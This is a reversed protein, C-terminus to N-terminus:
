SCRAFVLHGSNSSFTFLLLLLDAHRSSLRLTALGGHATFLVHFLSSSSAAAATEPRIPRTPLSSLINWKASRSICGPSWTVITILGGEEEGGSCCVRSPPPPPQSVLLVALCCCVSSEARCRRGSLVREYTLM